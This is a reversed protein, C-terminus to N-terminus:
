LSLGKSKSQLRKQYCDMYISSVFVFAMMAVISLMYAGPLTSVTAKYIEGFLPNSILPVLSQGLAVMSFVAGIESKDVVKTCQSRFNSNKFSVNEESKQM